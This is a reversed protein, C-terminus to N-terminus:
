PAVNLAKGTLHTLGQPKEMAIRFPSPGHSFMELICAQEAAQPGHIRRSSLPSQSLEVQTFGLAFFAKSKQKEWGTKWFWQKM